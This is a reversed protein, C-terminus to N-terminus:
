GAFCSHGSARSSANQREGAFIRIWGHVACVRLIHDLVSGDGRMLMQAYQLLYIGCDYYNGVPQGPVPVSLYYAPYEVEFDAEELYVVGGHRRAEYILFRNLVKAVTEHRFGISDLTLIV